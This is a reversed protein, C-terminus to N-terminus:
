CTIPSCNRRLVKAMLLWADCCKAFPRYALSQWKYYCMLASTTPLHNTLLQCTLSDGPIALTAVCITLLHQCATTFLMKGNIVVRRLVLPQCM